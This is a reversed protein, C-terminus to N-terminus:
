WGVFRVLPKMQFQRLKLRWEGVISSSCHCQVKLGQRRSIRTNKRLNQIDWKMTILSSLLLLVLDDNCQQNCDKVFLGSSPHYINLPFYKKKSELNMPKLNVTSKSLAAATRIKHKNLQQRAMERIIEFQQRKQFEVIRQKIQNNCSQKYNKRSERVARRIQDFRSIINEAIRLELKNIDQYDINKIANRIFNKDVCKSLM